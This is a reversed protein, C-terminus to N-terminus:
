GAATSEYGAGTIAILNKTYSALMLSPFALSM